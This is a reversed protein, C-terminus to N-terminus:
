DHGGILMWRQCGSYVGAQRALSDKATEAMFHVGCLIVEDADTAAAIRSLGLSDGVHHAVDQIEPLQYNHALIVANRQHALERVEEAWDIGFTSEASIRDVTVTNQKTAM